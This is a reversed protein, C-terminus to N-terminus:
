TLSPSCTSGGRSVPQVITERNIFLAALAGARMAYVLEARELQEEAREELERERALEEPTYTARAERVVEDFDYFGDPIEDSM